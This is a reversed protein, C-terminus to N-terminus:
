KTFPPLGYPKRLFVEPGRLVEVREAPPVLLSVVLLAVLLVAPFRLFNTNKQPPLQIISRVGEQLEPLGNM